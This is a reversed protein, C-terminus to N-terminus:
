DPEGAVNCDEDVEVAGVDPRMGIQEAKSGLEFGFHNRTHGRIEEAFVALAPAMREIPPVHHLRLAVAPPDIAQAPGGAAKVVKPEIMEAAKELERFNKGVLGGCDVAAPHIARFVIQEVLHAFSEAPERKKGLIQA